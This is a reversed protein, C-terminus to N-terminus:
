LGEVWRALVARDEAALHEFRQRAARGEGDHWLIAEEVSRARGDHLLTLPRPSNGQYGLAWLPATRWRSMVTEGAVTRDALAEGMDHLQLDTYPSISGGPVLLQPRHCAPCGSREFLARGTGPPAASESAGPPVAVTEQFAVVASLLEESVEPVSGGGAEACAQAATCDDHPRVSSTLGMELAFAKATQARISSVDGQWGLRAPTGGADAAAAILGLGFIAPAMRPKILTDSRLPGYRLGAFVYAPRRLTWPTGDPYRGSLEQYRITVGAEATMGGTAATSLVAGYVPDGDLLPRGDRSRTGLQIVLAVPAPGDGIPGRGRKGSNHCSDCSFSNFLPGLGARRGAGPTGAPLWQTNFVAKGLEVRAQEAADLLRYPPPSFLDEFPVRGLPAQAPAPQVVVAALAGWV